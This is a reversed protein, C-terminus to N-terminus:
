CRHVSPLRKAFEGTLSYHLIELPKRVSCRLGVRSLVYCFAALIFPICHPGTLAGGLLLTVALLIMGFLLAVACYVLILIKVLRPLSFTVSVSSGREAEKIELTSDPSFSNRYVGSYLKSHLVIRQTGACYSANGIKMENAKCAAAEAIRETAEQLTCDCLFTTEYSPFLQM